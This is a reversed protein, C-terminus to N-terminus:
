SRIFVWVLQNGKESNKEVPGDCRDWVGLAVFGACAVGGFGAAGCVEDFYELTGVRGSCGLKGWAPGDEGGCGTSLVGGCTHEGVREDSSGFECCGVSGSSTHIEADFM